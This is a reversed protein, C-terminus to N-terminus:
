PSAQIDANYFFWWIVRIIMLVVSISNMVIVAAVAGKSLLKKQLSRVFFLITIGLCILFLPFIIFWDLAFFIFNLGRMLIVVYQFVAFSSEWAFSSLLLFFLWVSEILLAISLFYLGIKPFQQKFRDFGSAYRNQENM